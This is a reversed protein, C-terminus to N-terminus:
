ATGFIYPLTVLMSISWVCHTIIPALIGGSARRQLGVVLGLLIAAFALMINGTAATAIVYALTSWLIPYRTIAAYLAGRFFLEEAIGNIATIAVLLPLSGADAYSIVKAVQDSLWPIQAVVLGGAVFFLALGAGLALPATIPRKTPGSLDTGIPIRGLHLPGSAFAGVFWVAAVALSTLYFATSGPELRLLFGLVVAGVLVFGATILQRRRLDKQSQRHDRPVVDWLARQLWAQVCM